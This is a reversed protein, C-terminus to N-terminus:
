RKKDYKFWVDKFEIEGKIKIKKKETDQNEQPLKTILDDLDKLRKINTQLSASQSALSVLPGLIFTSYSNVVILEGITLEKQSILYVSFSFIILQMILTSIKQLFGIKIWVFEKKNWFYGGKILYKKLQSVEKDIFSALKVSKIHIYKELCIEM